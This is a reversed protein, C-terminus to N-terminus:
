PATLEGSGMETAKQFKYNKELRTFFKEVLLNHNSEYATESLTQVYKVSEKFKNQV